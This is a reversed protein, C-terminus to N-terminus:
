HPKKAPRPTKNVLLSFMYKKNLDKYLVTDSMWFLIEEALINQERCRRGEFDQQDHKNKSWGDMRRLVNRKEEPRPM